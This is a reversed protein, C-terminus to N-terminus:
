GRLPIRDAGHDVADYGFGQGVLEDRLELAIVFVIRVHRDDDIPPLLLTAQGPGGAAALALDPVAPARADGAVERWQCRILAPADGGGWGPSHLRPMGVAGGRDDSRM